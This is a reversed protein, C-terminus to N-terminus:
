RKFHDYNFHGKYTKGFHKGSTFNKDWATHNRLKFGGHGKTYNGSKFGDHGNTRAKYIEVLKQFKEETLSVTVAAKWAEFDNAEIAAHVANDKDKFAVVFVTSVLAVTILVALLITKKM